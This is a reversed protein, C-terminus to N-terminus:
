LERNRGALQPRAKANGQEKSARSNDNNYNLDKSSYAKAPTIRYIDGGVAGAIKGAAGKTTNTASFYAVLVKTDASEKKQVRIKCSARGKKDATVATVTATGNKKARINGNKDVSVIKKDSSKWRVKKSSKIGGSTATRLRLRGGEQMTANKYNLTLNGAAEAQVPMMGILCCVALLAATLIKKVNGM